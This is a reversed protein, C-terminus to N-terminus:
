QVHTRIWDALEQESLTGDALRVITTVVATETAELDLGNIGLFTVMALFGIRKNADHYPHNKVLGFAYAAALTPLDADPDCHRRQQPRALASELANDDCVGRLGGHERLQDLQLSDVVLRTLWRPHRRKAV